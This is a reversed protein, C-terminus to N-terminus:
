RVLMAYSDFNMGELTMEPYHTMEISGRGVPSPNHIRIMKTTRAIGGYYASIVVAHLGLPRRGVLLIPGRHLSEVLQDINTPVRPLLQMRLENAFAQLNERSPALGGAALLQATAPIMSAMRGTALAASVAWCTTMTNQGVRPLNHGIENLLGLARWTKPGVIGDQKLRGESGNYTSQFLRVATDTKQGFVGDEFLQVLGPTDRLAYNLLHQLYSVQADTIGISLVLM